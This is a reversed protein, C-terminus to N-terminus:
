EPKGTFALMTGAKRDAKMLERRARSHRRESRRQALGFLLRTGLRAPGGGGAALAHLPGGTSTELLPDELSLIAETGAAARSSGTSGARTTASPSSSM